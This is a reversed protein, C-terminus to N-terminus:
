VEGSKAKSVWKQIEQEIVSMATGKFPRLLFPVDLDLEYDKDRIELAGNLTMGKVNFSIDAKTPSVWTSRPSYQSFKDAYSKLASDAVQKAREQGLGHHVLHKMSCGDQLMRRREPLWPREIERGLAPSARRGAL